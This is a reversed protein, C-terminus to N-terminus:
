RYIIIKTSVQKKVTSIVVYYLGNQLNSVDIDREGNDIQKSLLEEGSVNLITLKIKENLFNNFCTHLFTSAPNPYISVTEKLSSEAIGIPNQVIIIGKMGMSAHTTCVYYHTGTNLQAPLVFGGGFPTSFGPLTTNGNSNWTAESVEVANHISGLSFNVSDGFTITVTSPTFTTGANTITVTNCFGASGLLFVLISLLKRKM